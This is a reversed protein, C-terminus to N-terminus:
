LFKIVIRARRKSGILKRPGLKKKLTKLKIILKKMKLFDKYKLKKIKNLRKNIYLKHM